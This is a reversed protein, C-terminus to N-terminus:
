NLGFGSVSQVFYFLSGCVFFVSIITPVMGVPNGIFFSSYHPTEAATEHLFWYVCCSQGLMILYVSMDLLQKSDRLVLNLVLSNVVDPFANAIIKIAEHCVCLVGYFLSATGISLVASELFQWQLEKEKRQADCTLPAIKAAEEEYKLRLEQLGAYFKKNAESDKIGIFNKLDDPGFRMLNPGDIKQLILRSCLSLGLGPINETWDCVDHATWTRVFKPPDVCGRLGTIVEERQSACSMPLAKNAEEEFKSRLALLAEDFEKNITFDLIGFNNLLHNTPEFLMLNSGDIRQEILDGRLSLGLGLNDAWDGVVSPTWTRV